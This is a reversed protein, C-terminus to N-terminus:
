PLRFTLAAIVLAALAVTVPTSVVVAAKAGPDPVIVMFSPDEMEVEPDAGVNKLKVIAEPAVTVPLLLKEMAPVKVLLEVPVNVELEPVMVQLPQVMVLEPVVNVNLLRLVVPVAVAPLELLKVTLPLKVTLEPVKVEVEFVMLIPPLKVLLPVNVWLEPVTAKVALPVEVIDPAVVNLLKLSVTAPLVKCNWFAPAPWVVGMNVKAPVRVTVPVPPDCMVIVESSEPVPV